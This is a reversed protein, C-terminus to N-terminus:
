HPPSTPPHLLKRSGLPRDLHITGFGEILSQQCGLGVETLATLEVANASQQVRFGLGTDCPDGVLYTVLITRGADLLALFQWHMSVIKGGVSRTSLRVPVAGKLAVAIDAPSAPTLPDATTGATALVNSTASHRPAALFSTASHPPAALFTAAAAVILVAIAAAVPPQWRRGARTRDTTPLHRATVEPRTADIEARWITADARLLLDADAPSEDVAIEM